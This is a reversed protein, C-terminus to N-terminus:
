VPLLVLAPRRMITSRSPGPIFRTPAGGFCPARMWSLLRQQAPCRNYALPGSGPSGVEPSRGPAGPVVSASGHGDAGLSEAGLGAEQQPLVRALAAHQRGVADEGLELDAGADGDLELRALVAAH